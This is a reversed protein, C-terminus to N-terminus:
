RLVVFKGKYLKGSDSEKIVYLYNGNDLSGVDLSFSNLGSISIIDHQTIKTGDLNYLFCTLELGAVSVEFQITATSTTVPNPALLINRVPETSPTTTNFNVKSSLEGLTNVVNFEALLGNIDPVGYGVHNDKLQSHTANRKLLSMIDDLNLRYDYSKLRAIIGSIIATSQSTGTLHSYSNNLKSSFINTGSVVFDVSSGYNSYSEKINDKENIAGVGIVDSFNAPYMPFGVGSNGVAAVVIVDHSLAYNIANQLTTTKRYFGWSCNIIDAGMDVAYRIAISAELQTGKGMYNFVKLPMIKTSPNLGAIGVLNHNAAIIGALHTGHGHDDTSNSSLSNTSYSIWSYGNVDDIFGNGDDDIGNLTENPNNFIADKLDEHDYDIGTDILAVVVDTNPKFNWIKYLDNVFLYSQNSKLPDVNPESYLEIEYNPEAFKVSSLAMLQECLKEASVDTQIQLAEIKESSSKRFLSHKQKNNPLRVQQRNLINFSKKIDSVSSKMFLGPQNYVIISHTAAYVPFILNVAFFIGILLTNFNM